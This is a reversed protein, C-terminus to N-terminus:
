QQQRQIFVACAAVAVAVVSADGATSAAAVIM